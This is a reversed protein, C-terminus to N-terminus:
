PAAFSTRLDRSRKAGLNGLTDVVAAATEASGYPIIGAQHDVQIARELAPWDALKYLNGIMTGLPRKEPVGDKTSTM